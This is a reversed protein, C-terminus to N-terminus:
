FDLNESLGEGKFLLYEWSKRIEGMQNSVMQIRHADEQAGAELIERGWWDYIRTLNIVLDGGQEANLRRNLEELIVLVRKLYHDRILPEQRLIADEAKGLLRQGGELLLVVIHEPIEAPELPAPPGMSEPESTM